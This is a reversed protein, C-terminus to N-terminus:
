AVLEAYDTPRRDSEVLCVVSVPTVLPGADILIEIKTGQPVWCPCQTVKGAVQVDCIAAREATWTIVQMPAFAAFTFCARNRYQGAQRLRWRRTRM